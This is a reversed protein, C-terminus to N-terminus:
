GGVADVDAAVPAPERGMLLAAMVALAGLAFLALPLLVFAESAFPDNGARVSVWTVIGLGILGGSLVLVTRVEAARRARRLSRTLVELATLDILLPVSVLGFGAAIGAFWLDDRADVTELLHYVAAIVLGTAVSATMARSQSM